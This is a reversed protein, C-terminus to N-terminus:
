RARERELRNAMPNPQSSLPDVLDQPVRLLEAHFECVAFRWCFPMPNLPTCGASLDELHLLLLRQHRSSLDTLAEVNWNPDNMPMEALQLRSPQELSVKTIESALSQDFGNFQVVAVRVQASPLKSPFKPVFIQRPNKGFELLPAEPIQKRRMALFM